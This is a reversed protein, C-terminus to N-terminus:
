KLFFIGLFGAAIMVVLPPADFVFAVMSLAAVGLLIWNPPNSGGSLLGFAVYAMLMAVAPMLGEVFRTLWAERKLRHLVAFVLLMLVTPPLSAGLLAALAGPFGAVRLGIFMALKEAESGPLVSSFSIAQVFQEETLIKGVAEQHLLGVSAIGSTTLLNIRLFLWFLAFLTEL